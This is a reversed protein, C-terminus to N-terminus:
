NCSNLITVKRMLAIQKEAKEQSKEFNNMEARPRKCRSTAAMVRESASVITTHTAINSRVQILKKKDSWNKINNFLRNYKNEVHHQREVPDEGFNGTKRWRRLFQVAHEELVHLKPPVSKNTLRERWLCGFYKAVKGFDEIESDTFWNNQTVLVSCCHDLAEMLDDMDILFTEIKDVIDEELDFMRDGISDKWCLRIDAIIDKHHMLLRHCHEGILSHSYYSQTCIGYKAMIQETESKM